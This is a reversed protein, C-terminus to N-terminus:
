RPEHSPCCTRFRGLYCGVMWLYMTNCYRYQIPITNYWFMREYYNIPTRALPVLLVFFAIDAIIKVAKIGTMLVLQHRNSHWYCSTTCKKDAKRTLLKLFFYILFYISVSLRGHFFLPAELMTLRAEKPVKAVKMSTIQNTYNLKQQLSLWLFCWPEVLVIIIIFLM